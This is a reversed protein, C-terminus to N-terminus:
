RSDYTRLYCIHILLMFYRWARSMSTCRERINYRVLKQLVAHFLDYRQPRKMRCLILLTMFDYKYVPVRLLLM